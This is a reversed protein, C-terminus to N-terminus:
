LQNFDMNQISTESMKLLKVDSLFMLNMLNHFIEDNTSIPTRLKGLTVKRREIRLHGVAFQLAPNIIAGVQALPEIGHAAIRLAAHKQRDLHLHYHLRQSLRSTGTISLHHNGSAM